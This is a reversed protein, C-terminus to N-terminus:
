RRGMKLLRTRLWLIFATWTGTTKKKARNSRRPATNFQVDEVAKPEPTHLGNPPLTAEFNPFQTKETTNEEIVQNSLQHATSSSRIDTSTSRRSTGFSTTRVHGNGRELRHAERSDAREQKRLQERAYKEEKQKEKEEFKRRADRVQEQHTMTDLDSRSRLRFGNMDLSSRLPSATSTSCPTTASPLNPSSTLPTTIVTHNSNNGTDVRYLNTGLHRSGRLHFGSATRGTANLSPGTGDSSNTRQRSFSPRSYEYSAFHHVASDGPTSFEDDDLIAGPHERTTSPLHEVSALSNTYSIPPESTRPLQQFPHVFSGNRGSNTTAVSVHSTASTSRAHANRARESILGGHVRHSTATHDSTPIAFSVDRSTRGKTTMAINGSGNGNVKSMTPDLPESNGPIMSPIAQQSNWASAPDSSSLRGHVPSRLKKLVPRVSTQPQAKESRDYVSKNGFGLSGQTQLVTMIVLRKHLKILSIGITSCHM